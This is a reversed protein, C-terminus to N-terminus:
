VELAGVIRHIKKVQSEPYEKFDHGEAVNLYQLTINGEGDLAAVRGIRATGDTFEVLASNGQRVPQTPNIYVIDGKSYRLEMTDDMVYAAFADLVDVLPDIRLVHKCPNGFFLGYKGDPGTYGIVPVKASASNTPESTHTTAETPSPPEEGLMEEVSTGAISALKELTDYRPTTKTTGKLIKRLTSEDVGADTAWKTQQLKHKRQFTLLAQRIEETTRQKM